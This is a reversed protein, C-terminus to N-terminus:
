QRKDEIAQLRKAYARAAGERRFAAILKAKDYVGDGLASLSRTDTVQVHKYRHKMHLFDIRTWHPIPM